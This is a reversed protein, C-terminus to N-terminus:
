KKNKEDKVYIQKYADKRIDILTFNIKRNTM